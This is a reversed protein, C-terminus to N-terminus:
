ADVVGIERPDGGLAGVRAGSHDIEEALGRRRELHHAVRALPRRRRVDLVVPERDLSRESELAPLSDDRAAVLAVGLHGLREVRAAAHQEERGREMVHEPVDVEDLAPEEERREEREREREREAVAARPHERAPYAPELARGVADGGPVEVVGHVVPARVLQAM